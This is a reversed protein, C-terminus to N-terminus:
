KYEISTTQAKSLGETEFCKWSSDFPAIFIDASRLLINSLYFMTSFDVDKNLILLFRNSPVFQFKRNQMQNAICRLVYM